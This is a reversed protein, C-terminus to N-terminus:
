TTVKEKVGRHGFVSVIALEREREGVTQRDSENDEQRYRERVM